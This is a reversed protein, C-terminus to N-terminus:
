NLTIEIPNGDSADTVNVLNNDPELDDLVKYLSLLPNDISIQGLVARLAQTEARSLVLNINHAIKTQIQM